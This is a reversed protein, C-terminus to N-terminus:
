VPWPPRSVDWHKRREEEAGEQRARAILADVAPDCLDEDEGDLLCREFARFVAERLKDLSKTNEVTM